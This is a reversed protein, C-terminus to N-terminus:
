LDAAREAVAEALARDAGGAREALQLLPQLRDVPRLGLDLLQGAVHEAQLVDEGVLLGAPAKPSIWSRSITVRARGGSAALKWAVSDFPVRASQRMWRGCGGPGITM